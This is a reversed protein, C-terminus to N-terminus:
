KALFRTRCSDIDCTDDSIESLTPIIPTCVNKKSFLLNEERSEECLYADLEILIRLKNGVSNKLKTSTLFLCKKKSSPDNNKITDDIGRPKTSSIHLTDYSKIDYLPGYTYKCRNSLLNLQNEENEFYVFHLLKKKILRVEDPIEFILDDLGHVLGELAIVLVELIKGRQTM